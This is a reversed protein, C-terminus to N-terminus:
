TEENIEKKLQFDRGIRLELLDISAEVDQMQAYLERLDEYYSKIREAVDNFRVTDGDYLCDAANSWEIALTINIDEIKATLSRKLDVFVFMSDISSLKGM